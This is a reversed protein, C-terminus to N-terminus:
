WRMVESTLAIRIPITCDKIKEMGKDNQFMNCDGDGYAQTISLRKSPSLDCVDGVGAASGGPGPNTRMRPTYTIYAYVDYRENKDNDKDNILAGVSEKYKTM